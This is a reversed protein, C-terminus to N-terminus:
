GRSTKLVVQRSRGRRRRGRPRPADPAEFEKRVGITDGGEATGEPDVGTIVHAYPFSPSPRGLTQRFKRGTYMILAVSTAYM